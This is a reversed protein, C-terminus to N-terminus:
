TAKRERYASQRCANSPYKRPRGRKRPVSGIAPTGDEQLLLQKCEPCFKLRSVDFNSADAYEFGYQEVLM